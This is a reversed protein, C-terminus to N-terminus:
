KSTQNNACISNWGSGIPYLREYSKFARGYDGKKLFMQIQVGRIRQYEDDDFISRSPLRDAILKLSEEFAKASGDYDSMCADVQGLDAFLESQLLRQSPGSPQTANLKIAVSFLVRAQGYDKTQLFVSATKVVPYILNHQQEKSLKSYENTVFWNAFPCFATSVSPKLDIDFSGHISNEALLFLVLPYIEDSTAHSQELIRQCDSLKNSWANGLLCGYVVLKATSGDIRQVGQLSQEIQKGTENNSYHNAAFIDAHFNAGVTRLPTVTQPKVSYSVIQREIEPTVIFVNAIKSDYALAALSRAGRDFDQQKGILSIFMLGTDIGGQFAACFAIGSVIFIACEHQWPKKWLPLAVFGFYLFAILFALILLGWGAFIAPARLFIDAGRMFSTAIGLVAFVLMAQVLIVTLRNAKSSLFKCQLARLVTRWPRKLLADTQTLKNLFNRTKQGGLEFDQLADLGSEFVLGAQVFFYDAFDVRGSRYFMGLALLVQGFEYLADVYIRSLLECDQLRKHEMLKGAFAKEKAEKSLKVAEAACVLSQGFHRKGRWRRSLDYLRSVKEPLNLDETGFLSNMETVLPALEGHLAESPDDSQGFWAKHLFPLDTMLIRVDTFRGIEVLSVLVRLIENEWLFVDCGIRTICDIAGSLVLKLDDLGLVNCNKSTEHLCRAYYIFGDEQRNQNFALIAQVRMQHVFDIADNLITIETLHYRVNYGSRSAFLWACRMLGFAGSDHPNLRKITSHM